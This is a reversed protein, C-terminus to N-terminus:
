CGIRQRAIAVDDIYVEFGGANARTVGVATHDYSQGANSLAGQTSVNGDIYLTATAADINGDLDHLGAGGLESLSWAGVDDANVEVYQSTTAPAGLTVELTGVYNILQAPSYVWERVAFMGASFAANSVAYVDGEAGAGQDTPVSSDLGYTGTDRAGTTVLQSAPLDEGSWKALDGSEFDDCFVAFSPCGGGADGDPIPNAADRSHVDGLPMADRPRGGFDVRGCAAACLGLALLRM